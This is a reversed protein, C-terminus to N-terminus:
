YMVVRLLNRIKVHLHKLHLQFVVARLWDFQLLKEYLLIFFYIGRVPHSFTITISAYITTIVTVGRNFLNVKNYTNLQYIKATTLIQLRTTKIFVQSVWSKVKTDRILIYPYSQVQFYKCCKMDM